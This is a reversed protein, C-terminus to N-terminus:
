NAIGSGTVKKWESITATFGAETPTEVITGDLALPKNKDENFGSLGSSIDSALPMDTLAPDTYTITGNLKQESGTIGLLRVTAIWKGAHEGTTQLSFTIPLNTVASHTNTSFDVTGAVGSLIATIAKIKDVSGGTPEIILTLQRVQQCMVATINHESDAKVTVDMACTFLWGSAGASYDANATTGNITINDATNYIDVKYTGPDFLKEIKNTTGSLTANYDGINVTYTAPPNIGEGLGNWDTTLTIRGPGPIEPIEPEYIPDTIDCGVFSLLAAIVALITIIPRIM